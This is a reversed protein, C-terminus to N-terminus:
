DEDGDQDRGERQVGEEYFRRGDPTFIMERGHGDKRFHIEYVIFTKKEFKVSTDAGAAKVTEARVVAPADSGPISEEIEVVDGSETVLGDISGKPGKWTGEYFKHGHEIEEAFEEIAAGGSLKRLADLAPKPVGAETVKREQEENEHAKKDQACVMLSGTLIIGLAIAMVHSGWRFM